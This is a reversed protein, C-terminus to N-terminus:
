YCSKMNIIQINCQYEVQWPRLSHISATTNQDTMLNHLAHAVSYVAKHMNYTVRLQSVDNYISDTDEVRERGTCTKNYRIPEAMSAAPLTTNLSCKFQTEWFERVFPSYPTGMPKLNQLFRKLFPMEARRIAFGVAGSLSAYNARTSILTSTVWAESAVWQKGTVNQAVMETVVPEIDEEIAFAVVVHATSDRITAVIDRLEEPSPLKPITIRYAVCVGLQTVEATFMDIGTRGYDDDAGMTGVWTWGLHRVLHALARAQHM